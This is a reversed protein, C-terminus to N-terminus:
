FFPLMYLLCVHMSMNVRVFRWACTVLVCKKYVLFRRIAIVMTETEENSQTVQNEKPITSSEESAM